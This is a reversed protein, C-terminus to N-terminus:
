KLIAACAKLLQPKSVYSEHGLISTKIGAYVNGLFTTMEAPVGMFSLISTMGFYVDGAGIPDIVNSSFAPCKTAGWGDHYISGSAGTTVSVPVNLRRFAVKGLETIESKRDNHALQLERKDVCLYRYNTHRTYVNFGYNSSNTQVNLGVWKKTKLIWDMVANEFLGHGFDAAIVLDFNKSEIEKAILEHIFNTKIDTVEFLRQRGETVYRTKVAPLFKDMCELEFPKCITSLSKTIAESGGRYSFKGIKRTSLTPSKSSVGQPEVFEYVDTIREGLILVRLSSADSLISEIEKLGGLARIKEIMELQDETWVNFTRNVIASSSETEEDLFVIKGGNAEVAEREKVIMGTPDDKPDKYDPGKVYFDPKIEKIMEVATPYNSILVDDVISLSLLMKRRAEQTFYPRNPGKQVFKDATVTVILRDGLKKAAELYRIHGVHLVDFVGHCQVTTM